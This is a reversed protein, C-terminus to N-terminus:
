GDGIAPKKRGLGPILMPVREQYRTYQEGFERVLKREEYIAGLILYLTLGVNLALLNRTM